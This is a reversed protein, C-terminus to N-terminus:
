VQKQVINVKYVCNATLNNMNIMLHKSRVLFVAQNDKKIKIVEQHANLAHELGLKIVLNEKRVNNVIKQNLQDEIPIINLWKVNRVLDKGKSLSIIAQNALLAHPQVVLQFHEWQANLAYLHVLTPTNDLQVLFARTIIIVKMVKINEPQAYNVIMMKM